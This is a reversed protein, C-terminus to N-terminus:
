RAARCVLDGAAAAARFVAEAETLTSRGLGCRSTVITRSALGLPDSVMSATTLWRSFALGPLEPPPAAGILGFAVIRQPDDLVLMDNGHPASDQSSDFSVVDCDFSGLWGPQTIACCHIGTRAGSRRIRDLIGKLLMRPRPDGRSDTFVLAPEDVVILVPLGVTRLLDVQRVARRAVHEALADLLEPGKDARGDAGLLGALTVPGTLQSKLALARPFAGAEAADVFQRVWRDTTFTASELQQDLTDALLNPTPPQPCFPLLPAHEAVFELAEAPETTPLSGIGTVAGQPVLWTGDDDGGRDNLRSV